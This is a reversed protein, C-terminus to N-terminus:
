LNNNENLYDVGNNIYYIYKSYISLCINTIVVYLFIYKFSFWNLIIILSTLSIIATFATLKLYYKHHYFISIFNYKVKMILHILQSIFIIVLLYNLHIYQELGIWLIIPDILFLIVPLMIIGIILLINQVNYIKNLGLKIQKPDNKLKVLKQLQPDFINEIFQKALNFLRKGISFSGTLEPSLFITVLLQDSYGYFYSLYASYTFAKSIKLNSILKKINFILRPKIWKGIMFYIPFIVLLPLFIVTHIYVEFGYKIFLLLAIIRGAVRIVFVGLAAEFYKNFSKLILMMSDSTASTISLFAMTLFLSFYEGNYKYQSIFYCYGVSPVVLLMAIATRLIVAQTIVLDIKETENNQQWALVNRLAYTELGTNSFVLLFSSIVAYIATIAYVDAPLSAAIWFVSVFGIVINIIQLIVLAISQKM